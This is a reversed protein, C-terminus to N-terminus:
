RLRVEFRVRRGPRPLGCQDYLATDAANDVAVRAELRTFSGAGWSARVPWGRSVFGGVLAGSELLADEGTGPDICFQSGSYEVAAGGEMGLFLPFRASAGGLAEPLNEPRHTESADTDTLEVDQLMLHGSLAVPGLAQSAVIEVGTSRLENRNVRLFRGDELAIRVVADDLRNHFVVLQVEGDGVRTTAGTEMAVLREPRLDPNPAFRDISGSYLERLSPFRGRRSVSAHVVANGGGIGMTVGARGGWETLRGLPERGGTEPTEGVDHAGGLSVTLFRVARGREVVRWINEVGVSWLRQRYVFEGDPIIERHRINSLTVAGRLEGRRTLSQDGLIRLTLTQDRGDEFSDIQDYARSTYADIDTRGRDFGVSAELDGRGGFPSGREGTGGSLVALTRSVHPYRWFRADDVGLEAAIGREEKFSSGSFSLWAGGRAQHRFAVFGNANAADTNVRLGDDGPLPESVGDPLPQGPTDRYGVGFRVQSQGRGIAFPLTATATSGHSGLNDVGTTVHLTRRTSTELRQAVRAEVVGGLVNPGHLMSSLGRVFVVDQLATAPIVSLDARADWALTIPVGDVLVAVQRSESGRASVESEGRSNTRVHVLPLDRLVQEVTPAAPLALSDVRAEVASAGGVTPIPRPARIVIPPVEFDPKGAATSDAAGESAAGRAGALLLCGFLVLRVIGRVRQPNEDHPTPRM